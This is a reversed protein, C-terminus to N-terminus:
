KRTEVAAFELDEQIASAKDQLTGNPDLKLLANAFRGSWNKRASLYFQEFEGEADLESDALVFLLVELAAKIGPNSDPSDYLHTYFPHQTNIILKKQLGLREARYFPGEPISQFEVKYPRSKTQEQIEKIVDEIPKDKRESERAAEQELKQQAKQVKEPSPLTAKPLFKESEKMAEESPRQKEEDPRELKANLEKQSTEYKKRLDTFLKKLGAAELRSWMGEKVVIQQKSTTIGFFDDLEPDFDIEIKIYRDNNV